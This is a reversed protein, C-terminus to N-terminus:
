IHTHRAPLHRVIRLRRAPQLTEGSFELLISRNNAAINCIPMNQIGKTANIRPFGPAHRCGQVVDRSGHLIGKQVRAKLVAVRLSQHHHIVAQITGQPWDVGERVTPWTMCLEKLVHGLIRSVGRTDTAAENACLRDYKMVQWWFLRALELDIAVDVNAFRTFVGHKVKHIAM